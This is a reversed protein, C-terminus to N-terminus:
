KSVNYVKMLKKEEAERRKKEEKRQEELMKKAELSMKKELAPRQNEKSGLKIEQRYPDLDNSLATPKLVDSQLFLSDVPVLEKKSKLNNIINKKSSNGSKLQRSTM